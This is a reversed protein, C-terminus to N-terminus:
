YQCDTKLLFHLVVFNGKAKKLTFTSKDTVSQLTFNDVKQARSNIGFLLIIILFKIRKM